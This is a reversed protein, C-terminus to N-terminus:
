DNDNQVVLGYVTVNGIRYERVSINENWIKKQRRNGKLM